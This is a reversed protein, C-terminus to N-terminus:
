PPGGGTPVIRSDSTTRRLVMPWFAYIRSRSPDYMRMAVRRSDVRKRQHKAARTAAHQSAHAFSRASAGSFQLSRPTLSSASRFPSTAAPRRRPSSAATPSGARPSSPRRRAARDCAPRRRRRGHRPAGPRAPRPRCSRPRTRGRWGVRHRARQLQLPRRQRRDPQADAHVGALHLQAVLAVVDARRDVAGRPQAIQGVAALGHQRARGLSRTTSWSGASAQSVSRPVWGSRSRGRGSRTTCSHWGSRRLSKGGSRVGFLRQPACDEPAASSNRRARRPSSRRARLQQGVVPQHRQGARAADPLVRSATCTAAWSAPSNPSPTQYTSRAGIVSGSTTGTSPPARAPGARGAPGSSSPCAAATRRRGGSASPAPCSRADARRWRRAPRRGAPHAARRQRQQRGATLRDPHGALHAPPHRRQRQGVLRDLQEGVAGAPGPGVEGDGVVVGGRHGLDAAAEVAHRQRDFQRRRPHPRQRQGLDEVAQM